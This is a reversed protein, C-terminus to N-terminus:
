TRTDVIPDTRRAIGNFGAYYNRIEILKRHAQLRAGKDTSFFMAEMDAIENRLREVGAISSEWSIFDDWELPYSPNGDVFRDIVAIADAVSAVGSRIHVHPSKRLFTTLWKMFPMQQESNMEIAM